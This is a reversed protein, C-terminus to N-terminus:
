PSASKTSKRAHRTINANQKPIHAYSVFRFTFHLSLHPLACQPCPHQLSLHTRSVPGEGFDKEPKQYSMKRRNTFTTPHNPSPHIGILVQVAHTRYPSSLSNNTLLLVQISPFDQYGFKTQPIPSLRPSATRKCSSNQFIVAKPSLAPQKFSKVEDDTSVVM